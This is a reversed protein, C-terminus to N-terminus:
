AAHAAVVASLAHSHGQGADIALRTLEDVLFVYTIGAAAVM